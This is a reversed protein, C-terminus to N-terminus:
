NAVMNVNDMVMAARRAVVCAALSQDMGHVFPDHEYSMAPLSLVVMGAEM